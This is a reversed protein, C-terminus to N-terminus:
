LKSLFSHFGKRKSQGRSATTKSAALDGKEKKVTHGFIRNILAHPGDFDLFHVKVEPEMFAALFITQCSGGRTDSKTIVRCIHSFMRARSHFIAAEHKSKGEGGENGLAIEARFAM